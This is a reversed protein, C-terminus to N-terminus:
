KLLEVVAADIDAPGFQREARPDVAFEHRLKGSRDYVRFCPVSGALGFAEIAKVGSGYASLLNDFSAGQRRLFERVQPEAEPEDLSVSVVALGREAYKRHLEVTHPFQEVCSPCWTAWFDVLVVRGRFKALTARFEDVNAVRVTIAQAPAQSPSVSSPVAEEARRGCGASVIATMLVARFRVKPLAFSRSFRTKRANAEAPADGERM